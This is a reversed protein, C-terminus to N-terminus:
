RPLIRVNDVEDVRHTVDESERSRQVAKSIRTARGELDPETALREHADLEAPGALLPDAGLAGADTAAHTPRDDGAIM